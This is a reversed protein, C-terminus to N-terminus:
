DALLTLNCMFCGLTCLVVQPAPFSLPVLFFAVYATPTPTPGPPLSCSSQNKKSVLNIPFSSLFCLLVNPLSYRNPPTHTCTYTHVHTHTHTHTHTDVKLKRSSKGPSIYCFQPLFSHPLVVAWFIEFHSAFIASVLSSDLLLLPSASM